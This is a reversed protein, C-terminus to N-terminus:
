HYKRNWLNKNSRWCESEDYFVSMRLINVFEHVSLHTMLFLCLAVFDHMGSKILIAKLFTVICKHFSHNKGSDYRNRNVHSDITHTKNFFEIGFLLKSAHVGVFRIKEYLMQPHPNHIWSESTPLGKNWLIPYLLLSYYKQLTKSRNQIDLM